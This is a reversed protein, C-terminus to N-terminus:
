ALYSSGVSALGSGVGSVNLAVNEVETGSDVQTGTDGVVESVNQDLVTLQHGKNSWVALSAPLLLRITSESKHLASGLFM